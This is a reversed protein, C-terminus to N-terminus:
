RESAEVSGYFLRFFREISPDVQLKATTSAAAGSEFLQYEDM